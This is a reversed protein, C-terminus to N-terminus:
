KSRRAPKSPDHDLEFHGISLRDYSSFFDQKFGAWRWRLPLRGSRQQLRWQVMAIRGGQRAARVVEAILGWAFFAVVGAGIFAFLWVALM